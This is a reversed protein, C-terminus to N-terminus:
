LEAKRWLDNIYKTVRYTHVPNKSKGVLINDGREIIKLMQLDEIFVHISNYPVDTDQSIQKKTLSARDARVLLEVIDTTYHRVTDLAVRKMISYTEEDITPKDEIITLAIALRQLQIGVRNGSEPEPRFAPTDRGIGREVRTVQCRLYGLLRALPIIRDRFWQPVIEKIRAPSFDWKKNLFRKVQKLLVARNDEGMLANIMATEQQADHDIGETTISFRLFREGLSAQSHNKIINTVGALMSFMVKYRRVIDNGFDREVYGDFAGRLISFIEDRDPGSKALVETYDKLVLCKQDLKPLLSPDNGELGKFGSVLSHRRLSSQFYCQKKAEKMSSLIATKGYGPPGVLFLWLPDGGPLRISLITALCIKIGIIFDENLEFVDAYCKILEDISLAEKSNEGAVAPLVEEVEEYDGQENVNPNYSKILKQLLTLGKAPEGKAVAYASIFDNIDYAPVFEEPWAVYQFSETLPDLREFLSKTGSMGAGDHDLCVIVSRGIFHSMWTSKFTNAGPIGIVVGPENNVKLLWALAICDFEGECIYIPEKRSQVLQQFNYIGQDTAKLGIPRGEPKFHKINLVKGQHNCIPIWYKGKAFAINSGKFAQIPLKRYNALKAISTSTTMKLYSAHIKTLLGEWAGKHECAKCDWALTETNIFCHDDHGCIPCNVVIHNTVTRSTFVQFVEALNSLRQKEKTLKESKGFM